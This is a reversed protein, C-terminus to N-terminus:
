LYKNNPNLARFIKVGNSTFHALIALQLDTVVLYNKIQEINKRSFYNGKKLELVIKNDIIFDVYNRGIVEGKFIVKYPAQRIYYIGQEKFCVEIAKEYTREKYGYGLENYVDYLVGVIKYSLDKYILKCGEKNM